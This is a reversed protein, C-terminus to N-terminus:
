YERGGRGREGGERRGERVEGGERGGKGGGGCLEGSSGTTQLCLVHVQGPIRQLHQTQTQGNRRLHQGRQLGRLVPFM